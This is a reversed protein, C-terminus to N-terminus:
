ENAQLDGCAGMGVVPKRSVGGGRYRRWGAGCMGAEPGKCMRDGPIVKGVHSGVEIVRPRLELVRVRLGEKIFGDIVSGEGPKRWGQGVENEETTSM